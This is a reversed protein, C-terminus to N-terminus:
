VESICIAQEAVLNRLDLRYLYAYLGYTSIDATVRPFLRTQLFGEGTAGAPTFFDAMDNVVIVGDTDFVFNIAPSSVYAAALPVTAMLNASNVVSGPFWLSLVMAIATLISFVNWGRISRFTQSM